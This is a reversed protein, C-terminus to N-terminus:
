GNDDRKERPLKNMADSMHPNSTAPCSISISNVYRQGPSKCESSAATSDEEDEKSTVMSGTQTEPSRTAEAPGLANVSHLQAGGATSGSNGGCGSSGGIAAKSYSSLGSAGLHADVPDMQLFM